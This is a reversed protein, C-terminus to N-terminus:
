FDLYIEARRNQARGDPNDTGDAKANPFLPVLEGAAETIIQTEPIGAGILFERVRLARGASLGANYDFSGLSDAHGTIRLKKTPDDQLLRAVVRLQKQARSHVEDSDYPFYLALSEGGNPSSVIPTYPVEGAATRSAYGSLLDSLNISAIGWDRAAGPESAPRREIEMGFELDADWADSRIKAIAWAADETVATVRVKAPADSTLGADEFVFCLAAVKESPLKGAICHQRAQRYDRQIVADVFQHATAEAATKDGTNGSGDRSKGDEGTLGNGSKGLIQRELTPPFTLKVIKADVPDKSFEFAIHHVERGDAPTTRSFPVLYSTTGPLQEVKDTNSQYGLDGIVRSLLLAAAQPYNPDATISFHTETDAIGGQDLQSLLSVLQSKRVQDPTAVAARAPSNKELGFGKIAADSSSGESSTAQELAVRARAEREEEAKKLTFSFFIGVSMVILALFFIIGIARDGSDSM